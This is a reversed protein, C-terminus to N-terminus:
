NGQRAQQQSINEFVEYVARVKELIDKIKRTRGYFEDLKDLRPDCYVSGFDLTMLNAELTDRRWVYINNKEITEGKLGKVLEIECFDPATIDEPDSPDFDKLTYNPGLSPQIYTFLKKIPFLYDSRDSETDEMPFIADVFSEGIEEAKKGTDLSINRLITSIDMKHILRIM